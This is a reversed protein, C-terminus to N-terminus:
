LRKSARFAAFLTAAAAASVDDLLPGTFRGGPDEPDLADLSGPEAITHGDASVRRRWRYAALPNNVTTCCTRLLSGNHRALIAARLAGCSASTDAFINAAFVGDLLPRNDPRADADADAAADAATALDCLPDCPVLFVDLLEVLELLELLEDLESLLFTFPLPVNFATEAEDLSLVDVADRSFLRCTDTTGRSFDGPTFCASASICLIKLLNDASKFAFLADAAADARDDDLFPRDDPRADAGGGGGDAAGAREVLRKM